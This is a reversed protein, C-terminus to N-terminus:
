HAQSAVAHLLGLDRRWGLRSCQWGLAREFLLRSGGDNSRLAGRRRNTSAGHEEENRSGQLRNHLGNCAIRGGRFALHLPGNCRKSLLSTRPKCSRPSPVRAPDRPLMLAVLTPCALSLGNCVITLRENGCPNSLFFTSIEVAIAYQTSSVSECFSCEPSALETLFPHHPRSSSLLDAVHSRRKKGRGLCGSFRKM